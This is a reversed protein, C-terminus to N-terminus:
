ENDSDTDNIVKMYEAKLDDENIEPLQEPMAAEIRVNDAYGHMNKLQFIATVNDVSRILSATVTQDAIMDKVKSIFETSSNQHTRLYTSVRQISLGLAIVCFSNVTPPIEADACGCFYDRTREMVAKVDDLDVATENKVVGKDYSDMESAVLDAYRRAIKKLEERKSEDDEIKKLTKKNVAPSNPNTLAIEKQTALLIGMDSSRVKPTCNGKNGKTGGRPM